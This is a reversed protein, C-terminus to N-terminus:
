DLSAWDRSSSPRTWNLGLKNYYKAMHDATMFVNLCTVYTTVLSLDLTNLKSLKRLVQILNQQAYVEGM